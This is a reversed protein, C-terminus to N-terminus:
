PASAETLVPEETRRAPWALLVQRSRDLQASPEAMVRAFPMGPDIEVSVVRAAPYGTPFVGGLGSTVLLDGERIDANTPIHLLELLHPAGTGVAVARLGNRHLEVPLAHNPDTILMATSSMPGVHVLQGMVGEADIMPQGPYAEDMEGKNLVLRHSFPDMDVSLLEAVLVREGAKQSSQLLSRLRMNEAEVSVFKQLQVRLLQNQTRLAANEDQLDQRSTFTDSVWDLSAGPLHVLYQLPYVLVSLTSRMESLHGFRHDTTMLAVSILALATLRAALSPGQVFLHKIAM